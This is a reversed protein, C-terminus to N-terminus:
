FFKITLTRSRFEEKTNLAPKIEEIFLAELTLRYAKGRATTALITTADLDCSAGCSQLHKNVPASPRRHEKLRTMLHRSTQGVYAAQCVACQIQYIVGSKLAKEVAPKLSPLVTKLKRLTFIINCPAGCRHLSRAYEESVKGRYQLFM